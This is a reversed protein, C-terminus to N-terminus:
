RVVKTALETLSALTAHPDLASRDISYELRGVGDPLEGATFLSRVIRPVEESVPVVIVPGIVYRSNAGPDDDSWGAAILRGAFTSRDHVASRLDGVLDPITRGEPDEAVTLVALYLRRNGDPALQELGHVRVDESISGTAKVEVCASTLEFDHPERLPGRWSDASLTPDAATFEQLCTLEAFLGRRAEASLGRMAATGFLRRWRAVVELTAQRADASDRVAEVIDQVVADFEYYLDSRGCGVDVFSEEAGGFVLDHQEVTLASGRQAQLAGGRAVPVLV